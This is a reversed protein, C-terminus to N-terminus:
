LVKWQFWVNAKRGAKLGVKILLTNGAEDLGVLTTSDEQGEKVRLNPKDIKADVENPLMGTEHLTAAYISAEPFISKQRKRQQKLHYLASYRRIERM